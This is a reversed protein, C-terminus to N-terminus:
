HIKEAWEAARHKIAETDMTLVDGHAVCLKGDVWVYNVQSSQVSYVLTSVPDYVPQSNVHDLDVAVCDALKGTELTGLADEMGMARAGNVTAMTLVDWATTASANNASTKGFLAAQRMENFMNLENNSAASDTGLCLNIGADLIDQTRCMGSALGANSAPCHVVTVGANAMIEIEVDELQTAHVCQLLHSLLGLENLRELPRNGHQTIADAVEHVNEHVHMHIPIELENALTSIHKLPSDSVTYPAHPGFAVLVMNNNKYRDNLETAKRIYEDADQAYVTPFDLVPAAQITRINAALTVKAIEEPFFYMDTFATTGGRLMEAIALAAGDRVFEESVWQSEAPWIKEELWPQLAMDDAFGRFLAMPSHGHANILGPLLAHNDLTIEQQATCSKKLHDTADIAIIKNNSIALSQGRLILGKETMPILWEPHILFDAEFSTDPSESSSMIVQNKM